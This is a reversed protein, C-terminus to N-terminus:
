LPRVVTGFLKRVEYARDEALHWIFPFGDGQSPQARRCARRGYRRGSDFTSARPQACVEEETDQYLRVIQQLVDHLAFLRVALHKGNQEVSAMSTGLERMGWADQTDVAQLVLETAAPLRRSFLDQVRDACESIQSCERVLEDIYAEFSLHGGRRSAKM